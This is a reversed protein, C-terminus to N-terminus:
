SQRRWAVLNQAELAMLAYRLTRRTTPLNAALESETRPLRVISLLVAKQTRGSVTRKGITRNSLQLGSAQLESVLSEVM